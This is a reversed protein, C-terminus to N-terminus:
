EDGDEAPVGQLRKYDTFLGRFPGGATTDKVIWNIRHNTCNNFWITTQYQDKWKM